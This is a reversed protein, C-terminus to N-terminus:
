LRYIDDLTFITFCLVTNLLIFLILSPKVKVKFLLIGVGLISLVVVAELIYRLVINFVSKKREAIKKGERLFGKLVGMVFIIAPVYLYKLDLTKYILRFISIIIFAIVFLISFNLLFSKFKNKRRTKNTETIGVTNHRSFLIVFSIAAIIYGIDIETKKM